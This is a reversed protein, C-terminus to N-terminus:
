GITIVKHRVAFVLAQLRSDVGLKGFLSVMHTRITESSVHLVDAIQKDTLGDALCVLVERERRTLRKLRAGAARDRERHEGALRLLDITELPSLLPEGAALQRVAAIIETIAASKNLVGAAGAEVARAYHARDASATLVLVLGYPNVARLDRVLDVGDGDPLHLDVVAIDVGELHRRAEALTGAQAIVTTDAERELLF